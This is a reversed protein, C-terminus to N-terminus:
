ASGEASQVARFGMDLAKLNLEVKSSPLTERIEDQVESMDLPLIGLGLLSGLMIVNTVIPSNLEMAMKTANVYWYYKSFAQIMEKLRDLDPYIAQKALVDVPPIPRLNTLSVVESNGFRRLMRLTELPELSVILHAEGEPLLPGYARKESIRMSSFVHGGRQAAGFTEGVTVNINKRTLTRGLLRSILINGQGGVGCIVLNFPDPHQNMIM